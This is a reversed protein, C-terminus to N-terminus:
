KLIYTNFSNTEKEKFISKFEMGILDTDDVEFTILEYKDFMMKVITYGFDLFGSLDNSGMYSLENGEVFVFSGINDDELEVYVEKPLTKRFEDITSTLPSVKAHTKKYHNYALEVAQEYLLGSDILKVDDNYNLEKEIDNIKYNLEFSKRKLQFGSLILGRIIGEEKSDIMVQLPKNFFQKISEFVNKINVFNNFYFKYYIYKHEKHYSNDYAIFYGNFENNSIHYYEFYPKDSVKHKCNKIYNKYNTKVIKLM